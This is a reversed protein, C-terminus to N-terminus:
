APRPQCRGAPCSSARPTPLQSRSGPLATKQSHPRLKRTKAKLISGTNTGPRGSPPWARARPKIPTQQPRLGKRHSRGHEDAGKKAPATGLSTHQRAHWVRDERQLRGVGLYARVREVFREVFADHIADMVIIRNAIMCIQGQHLFKGVTAIHASRDVDADDLVVLPGDGGLELMARRTREARGSAPRSRRVSAGMDARGHHTNRQRQAVRRMVDARQVPLTRGWGRQAQEAALFATDVDAVDAEALEALPTGNYPDTVKLVTGGRGPRWAGAIPLDGLSYPSPLPATNM